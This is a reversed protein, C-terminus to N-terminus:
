KPKIEKNLKDSKRIKNLHYTLGPDVVFSNEILFKRGILVPYRMDGRFSLSFETAYVQKYFSMGLTIVFRESIDGNSSRINKKSYDHFDFVKGTYKLHDPDLFIVRLNGPATEEIRHCHIASTYAGTDIKVRINKLNIEPFNAKDLRGILNSSDNRLM